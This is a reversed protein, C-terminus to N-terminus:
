APAAQATQALLPDNVETQWRKLETLLQAKIEAYHPDDIRDNLEWPDKALDFLQLRKCGQGDPRPYTRILKHEATKVMAMADIYVSYISDRGSNQGNLTSCFSRGQVTDPTAIDCLQCLTPFLDYGYVMDSCRTGANLGPGRLFLPIRVSHDYMNQKGLLGHQGVALGHDGTYVVITNDALGAAELAALVRGMHHDQHEIMAYYDAIHQRISPATRPHEALNEDRIRLEGNDFPHEDLYNAPLPITEAPYRQHFADPATRPDHPSTFCLSLFFPEKGQYNNIFEVAADSFQETSHRDTLQQHEKPYAGSPDYDFVPTNWHDHMGGLFIAKGDKFSRNFSAADLHWKGTHFTHYGAAGFAQGMTINSEPVRMARQYVNLEPFNEFYSSAAFCHRGTNMCARSPVCVAPSHGGMIHAATCHVGDRALGDMHPTAVRQDGACGIADHRHDDAMMFLINPRTM